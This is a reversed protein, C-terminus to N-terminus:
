DTSNARDQVISRVVQPVFRECFGAAFSWFVLKGFDEGTKPYNDNFLTRLYAIDPTGDSPPLYIEPFLHGKLIGSFFLSYLVLAFFGGYTPILLVQCWSKSLMSIDHISMKSMRQQISVFGGIVGCTFVMWSVMFIDVDNMTIVFMAALGTLAALPFILLKQCLVSEPSSTKM